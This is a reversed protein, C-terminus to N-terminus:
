DAFAEAQLQFLEAYLGGTAILEAHTGHEAIEGGALVYIRDADRVSALRHTILLVTRDAMADRIQDFLAREARPDLSASPEDLILFPADRLYARALAVRQWQGISLDRGREYVRSLPTQYADPLRALFEDAGARRAAGVVADADDIRSVDGFGINEAASLEYRGFDQFLVAVGRRVAEGLDPSLETGDWRVVGQAPPLLGALIKALTTKGSGNEGVLAIVEGRRLSISVDRLAPASSGPYTYSIDDVQLSAFPPLASVSRPTSPSPSADLFTEMEALFLGSEFLTGISGVLSAIRGSLLQIAVVAAGAAGLSIRHAAVLWLLLALTASTGAVAVFTSSVSVATLRVLHRRLDGLYDGFRRDWRSRLPTALSFARVEKAFERTTLVRALYDRQRLRATQSVTFRYEMRGGFRALALAPLGAVVLVPVLLPNIAIVAAGVAVTGILAAGLNILSKTVAVPQDAANTIVRQLRDFFSPDDFQELEVTAAVDLVQSVVYRQARDGLLRAQQSQLAGAISGVLGAGILLALPAVVPRLSHSGANQRLLVDLAHRAVLVQTAAIAATVVGLIVAVALGLPSAHRVLGLARGTLGLLTRPSRQASGVATPGTPESM